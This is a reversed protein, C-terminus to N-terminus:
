HCHRVEVRGELTTGDSAICSLDLTGNVDYMDNYRWGTPAVDLELMRCQAARVVVSGGGELGTVRVGPGDLPDLVARVVVPSESARLLFGFFQEHEGTLCSDPRWALPEGAPVRVIIEGSVSPNAVEGAERLVPSLGCGALLTVLVFVLPRFLRRLADSRM